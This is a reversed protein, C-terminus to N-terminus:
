IVAYVSGERVPSNMNTQAETRSIENTVVGTGELYGTNLLEVVVVVTMTM